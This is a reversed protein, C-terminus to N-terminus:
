KAVRAAGAAMAEVEEATYRGLQGGTAAVRNALRRVVENLPTPVGYLRGLLVIEGNLYDTELTTHGRMLSQWTSSGGRPRGAIPEVRFRTRILADYEPEPMYDIGAAAYCALAEERLRAHLRHFVENQRYAGTVIQLANGLNSLLKTYKLRM